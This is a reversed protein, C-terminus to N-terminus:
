YPMYLFSVPFVLAGALPIGSPSQQPLIEGEGAVNTAPMFDTAIGENTARARASEKASARAPSDEGRAITSLSDQLLPEEQRAERRDEEGM